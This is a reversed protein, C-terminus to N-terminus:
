LIETFGDKEDKLNNILNSITEGVDYKNYDIKEPCNKRLYSEYGRRDIEKCLIQIFCTFYAKQVADEEKSFVSEASVIQSETFPEGNRSGKTIIEVSNKDKFIESVKGSQIFSHEASLFFVTQGETFIKSKNRTCPDVIRSDFGEVYKFRYAGPPVFKVKYPDDCDDKYLSMIAGCGKCRYYYNGSNPVEKTLMNVNHCNDLSLSALNFMEGDAQKLNSLTSVDVVLGNILKLVM